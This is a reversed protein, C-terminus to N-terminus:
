PKEEILTEYILEHISTDMPAYGLDIGEEEMIDLIEEETLTVNYDEELMQRSFQLETKDMQAGLVNYQADENPSTGSQECIDDYDAM